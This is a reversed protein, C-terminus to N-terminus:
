NIKSDITIDLIKEECVNKIAINELYAQIWFDPLPM